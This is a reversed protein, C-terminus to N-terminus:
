LREAGFYNEYVRAAIVANMQKRGARQWYSIVLEGHQKPPRLTRTVLSLGAHTRVIRIVEFQAKPLMMLVVCFCSLPTLVSLEHLRVRLEHSSFSILLPTHPPFKMTADDNAADGLLCHKFKGSRLLPQRFEFIGSPKFVLLM